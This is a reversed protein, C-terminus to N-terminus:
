AGARDLVGCMLGVFSRVQTAGASGRRVCVFRAGDFRWSEVTMARLVPDALAREAVETSPARDLEVAVVSWREAVAECDFTLFARGEHTGRHASHVVLGDDAGFRGGTLGAVLSPDVAAPQWTRREERERRRTARLEGWGALLLGVYSLVVFGVAVAVATVLLDVPSM